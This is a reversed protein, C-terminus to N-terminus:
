EQQQGSVALWLKGTYGCNLSITNGALYDGSITIAPTIKIAVGLGLGGGTDDISNKEAFV